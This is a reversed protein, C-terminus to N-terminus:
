IRDILMLETERTQHHRDDKGGVGERHDCAQQQKPPQGVLGASTRHQEHGGVQQLGAFLRPEDQAQRHAKAHVRLAEIDAGFEQLAIETHDRTSIPERVITDGSELISIPGGIADREVALVARAFARINENDDPDGKPQAEM